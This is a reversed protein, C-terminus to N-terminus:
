RVLHLLWLPIGFFFSWLGLIGAVAALPGLIGFFFMLFSGLQIAMWMWYAWGLTGCLFFGIGVASGFLSAILAKIAEMKWGWNESLKLTLTELKSAGLIPATVM